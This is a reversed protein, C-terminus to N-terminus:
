YENKKGLANITNLTKSEGQYQLNKSKAVHSQPSVFSLDWKGCRGAVKGSGPRLPTRGGGDEM